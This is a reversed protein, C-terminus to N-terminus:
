LSLVPGDLPPPPASSLRYPSIQPPPSGWPQQPHVPPIVPVPQHPHYTEWTEAATPEAHSTALVRELVERCSTPAQGPLFDPDPSDTIVYARNTQRGRSMVVYLDERGM